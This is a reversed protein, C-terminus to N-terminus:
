AIPRFFGYGKYRGAGILVPGRVKQGFILVAHIHYMRGRDSKRRLCPFERAHPVGEILSVPQLIVEEPRPLGIRECGDMVVIAANKWKDSGDFHRDLVVPTISAWVRSPQTWTRARMNFPPTERIDIEMTCELWKGDFLRIKKPLGHEDRFIKNLHLGAEEPSINRPLVLSAGMIRGDAHESGVFAMPVFALHPMMSPKGEKTHGSVWEPPPQKPCTAMVAGRLTELLKLTGTLNFRGDKMQLVVFRPDFVSGITEHLETPSPSDYGQWLGAEPRLTVPEKGNFQNNLQM